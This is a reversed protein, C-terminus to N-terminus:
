SGLNGRKNLSIPSINDMLHLAFVIMNDSCNWFGISFDNISAFDIGWQIQISPSDIKGREVIKRNPKPVKGVTEYKKLM